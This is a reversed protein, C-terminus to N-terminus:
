YTTGSMAVPSLSITHHVPPSQVQEYCPQQRTASATVVVKWNGEGASRLAVRLKSIITVAQQPAAGRRCAGRPVSLTARITREVQAIARPYTGPRQVIQITHSGPNAQAQWCASNIDARRPPVIRWHGFGHERATQRTFSLAEPESACRLRSGHGILGDRLAAALADLHRAARAYGTPLPPLHLAACTTDPFVAVQGLSPHACAVLTSPVRRVGPVVQGAAWQRACMATPGGHGAGFAASESSGRQPLHPLSYCIVAGTVRSAPTTAIAWGAATAALLAPVAISVILVRRNRRRPQWPRLNPRARARGPAPATSTLRQRLEALQTVADFEAPAPDADGVLSQIDSVAATFDLRDRM